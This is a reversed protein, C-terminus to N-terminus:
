TRSFKFILWLYAWFSLKHRSYFILVVTFTYIYFVKKPAINTNVIGIDRGWLPRIFKNLLFFIKILYFCLDWEFLSKKSRPSPTNIM